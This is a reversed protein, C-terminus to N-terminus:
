ISCSEVFLGLLADLLANVFLDPLPLGEFTTQRFQFANKALLLGLDLLGGNLGGRLGVQRGVDRREIVESPNFFGALFGLLRHSPGLLLQVGIGVPAVAPGQIPQAIVRQRM